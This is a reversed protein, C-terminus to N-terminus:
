VRALFFSYTLTQSLHTKHLELLNNLLKKEPNKMITTWYSLLGNLPYPQYDNITKNNDVFGM